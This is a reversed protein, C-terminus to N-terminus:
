LNDNFFGIVLAWADRAATEDYVQPRTDNFFAHDAEYKISVVPLEYRETINELRAVKEPNIWDDKTASIFITPVKLNKLLEEEPIDGYFPAAASIGELGCAARLAYTGGMCYGTIGFHSVGYQARAADMAEKITDLGDEIALSQMMEGAEQPNKAVKGRYLDPAIATFGEDAYRNAIDKIHDNLGWWEQILIVAKASDAAEPAAVYATADGGATSFSLTETKM